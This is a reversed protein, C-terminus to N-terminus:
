FWGFIFSLSVGPASLDNFDYSGIEAEDIGLVFRYNVGIGVKFFRTFNMELEIAPTIVFVPDEAKTYEGDELRIEGLGTQLSIVPHIARKPKIIYGTWIGGNNFSLQDEEDDASKTEIHNTLGCGYGGFFFKSNFLVAGGGGMTHAFQGDIATFCMFPEGFGSITKIHGDFITKYEDDQAHLINSLLLLVLLPYITKM